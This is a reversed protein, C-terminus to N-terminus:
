TQATPLELKYGVERVTQLYIEGVGLDQRLRLIATNLQNNVDELHRKNQDNYETKLVNVIIERRTCVIGTKEYLYCLINFSRPYMEMLRGNVWVLHRDKDIRIGIEKALKPNILTRSLMTMALVLHAYRALERTTLHDASDFQTLRKFAQLFLGLHYSAPDAAVSPDSFGRIKSIAIVTPLVEKECDSIMPRRFDSNCLTDELELLRLLNDTKVRDFRLEAELEVFNWHQPARGAEAFDTLWVKGKGDTLINQLTLCGSTFNVLVPQEEEPLHYFLQLPDKCTLPKDKYNFPWTLSGNAKNLRIQLRALQKKLGDFKQSLLEPSLHNASLGLRECYFQGLTKNEIELGSQQWNALTTGFLSGLVIDLTKERTNLLLEALSIVTEPNAGACIYARTAFHVTEGVDVCTTSNLGLAKPAFSDCRQAELLVVQKQGCVVVFWEPRKKESYAHVTIAVRGARRWLVRGIDIQEWDYFLRRFLDELEESRSLQQRNNLGSEIQNVLGLWSTQRPDDFEVRLDFNIHVHHAFAQEVTDLMIEWGETKELYYVAASSAKQLLNLAERAGRPFQTLILKPVSRFEEEQALLIGSFDLEDDDDELRLDLIALHISIEALACRAEAPSGAEFVEYRGDKKLFDARTARFHPKNDALLIRRQPM